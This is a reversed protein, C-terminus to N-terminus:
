IKNRKINIIEQHIKLIEPIIMMNDSNDIVYHSKEIKEEDGLQKKVREMVQERTLRNRRIIRDIREELPAIVTLIRDVLNAAGSEFLIAAEMIVYQADQLYEWNVFHDLVVPHVAHNVEQLILDDNFMLNALKSRNLLGTEYIDRGAISEIMSIVNKDTEMIIRAEADASFVPVGLVNFVRCVSTKGSGIGGTVGLRM